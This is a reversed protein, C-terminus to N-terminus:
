PQHDNFYTQLQDYNPHPSLSADKTFIPSRSAKKLNMSFGRPTVQRCDLRLLGPWRRGPPCLSPRQCFCAVVVRKGNIPVNALLKGTLADVLILRKGKDGLVILKGDALIPSSYEPDPISCVWRPKGTALDYCTLSTDKDDQQRGAAYVRGNDLIPSSYPDFYKVEWLLKPGADTLHYAGLKGRWYVALDDGALSPTPAYGKGTKNGQVDWFVTGNDAEVCCMRWM